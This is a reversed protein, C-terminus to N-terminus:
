PAGGEAVPLTFCFRMGRQPNPAATLRGGHSEVISRCINLGMGLGKEKTTFFPHFLRAMNEPSIGSGTDIICVQVSRGEDHLATQATLGNRPSVSEGMAELANFLLNVLVQEIQISDGLVRPLNAALDLSPRMRQHRLEFEMMGISERVLENIDVPVRQPQQKRVFSRMRSIIAGARRTENLVEQIATLATASSGKESEIQALCVSAYNMIASLPQNLEHALGSAMQGMTTVRSLHALEAERIKASEEAAKRHTIDMVVGMVRMPRGQTDNFVKGRVEIWHESADPWVVRFERHFGDRTALSHEVMERVGARDDPHVCREFADYTGDFQDPTLGFLRAHHHSWTMKGTQVDLECIGMQAVDVALTLQQESALFAENVRKREIAYRVSRARMSDTSGGKVLYDEAGERLARVGLAEDHLGTLVVIPIERPKQKSMRELTALGQSDPLGLDLLVADYRQAQLQGLAEELRKVHTVSFLGFPSEALEKQLLVSDALSDEVLLIRIPTDTM